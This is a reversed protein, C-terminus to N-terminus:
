QEGLDRRSVAIVEPRKLVEFRWQEFTHPEVVIPMALRKALKVLSQAPKLEEHSGYPGLFRGLAVANPEPGTVSRISVPFSYRQRRYRVPPSGAARARRATQPFSGREGRQSSQATGKLPGNTGSSRNSPLFGNVFFGRYQSKQIPLSILPRPPASIGNLARNASTRPETGSASFSPGFAVCWIM